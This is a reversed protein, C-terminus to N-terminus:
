PEEGPVWDTDQSDRFPRLSRYSWGRRPGPDADIYGEDKLHQLARVKAEYRQGSMAKVVENQSAGHNDEIYRSAQEMLGTPREVYGSAAEDPAQVDITLAGTDADSRVHLVAARTGNPYTGGRDKAVILDMRGDKGRAFPHTQNCRYAAGDIAARKRQSGIAYLPTLENAKPLHDVLIVAPGLAAIYRPIRQFWAVVDDDDNQKMSQMAMSEGVSDIVVVMADVRAVGASLVAIAEATAPMEPHVYVFHQLLDDRNCGLHLLRGIVNAMHDEHDVYVAGNGWSIAEACAHLTVWSKGSGSEGLVSNVRGEYFLSRGDSRVLVSPRPAVYAGSLVGSFDVPEWTTLKAPSVEEAGEPPAHLAATAAQVQEVWGIDDPDAGYGEQRLQAAAASHDGGHNRAAYYGFRSYSANEDLWAVSSTFVKLRDTGMANVTASVHDVGPRAWAQYPTGDRRRKTELYTWGDAPLLDNWTTRAEYDSGPTTPDHPRPPAPPTPDDPEETLLALLWGPADAVDVDDPGHEVEWEYRRGTAPHVTPWAVVQGGEGRVDLGHGLRKGADNTIVVGAPMNFYLHRGGSGTVAEVTDPLRGHAAELQDLTEDGTKGDAVDVDLVWLGTHIGTVIGVGHDPRATWWRTIKGPDTTSDTVWAAISPRKAGPLIPVVRWGRRAYDLAAALNPNPNAAHAAAMM